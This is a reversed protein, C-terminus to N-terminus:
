LLSKKRSRSSSNCTPAGGSIARKNSSIRRSFSRHLLSTTEEEVHKPASGSSSSNMTGGRRERQACVRACVCVCMYIYIIVVKTLITNRIIWKKKQNLFGVTVHQHLIFGVQSARKLFCGGEEVLDFHLEAMEASASGNRVNRTQEEEWERWHRALQLSENVALAIIIESSSTRENIDTSRKVFLFL